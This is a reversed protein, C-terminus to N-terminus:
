RENIKTNITYTNDGKSLVIVADTIFGNPLIEIINADSNVSVSDFELISLAKNSQWSSENLTLSQIKNAHFILRIPKNYLQSHNKMSVIHKQIKSKLGEVASPKALNISLTVLSTLIGVIVVVILLEILTFGASHKIVPNNSGTAL